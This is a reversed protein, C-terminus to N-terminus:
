MQFFQRVGERGKYIGAHTIIDEPGHFIWIVDPSLLSMIKPMDGQNFAFYLEKVMEIPTNETAFSTSTILCSLIVIAICSKLTIRKEGFMM